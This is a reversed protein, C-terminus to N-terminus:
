IRARERIDVTGGGEFVASGPAGDHTLLIYETVIEGEPQWMM